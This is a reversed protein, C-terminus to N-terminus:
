ENRLLRGALTQRWQGWRNSVRSGEDLSDTYAQVLQASAKHKAPKSLSQYVDDSSIKEGFMKAFFTKNNATVTTQNTQNRENRSSLIKETTKTDLKYKGDPTRLRSQKGNRAISSITNMMETSQLWLEAKGTSTDAKNVKQFTDRSQVIWVSLLEADDEDWDPLELYLDNMRKLADQHNDIIVPMATQVEKDTFTVENQSPTSESAKVYAAFDNTSVAAAKGSRDHKKCNETRCISGDSQRVAKAM